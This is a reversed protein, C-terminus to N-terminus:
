GKPKKSRIWVGRHGQPKFYEMNFHEVLIPAVYSGLGGSSSLSQLFAELTDPKAKTHTSGIPVGIDKKSAIHDRVKDFYATLNPEKTNLSVRTGSETKAIIRNGEIVVKFTKQKSGTTPTNYIGPLNEWLNVKAM